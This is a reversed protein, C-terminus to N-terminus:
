GAARWQVRLTLEAAGYVLRADLLRSRPYDVALRETRDFLQGLTAITQIRGLTAGLCFHLGHGFGLHPNPSRTMDFVDPDAFRRPDHNAATLWVSVHRAAPIDYGGVNVNELSVRELRTTQGRFRMVEEVFAPFLERDRRVQAAVDPHQDLCIMANVLLQNSTVGTNMLLAVLGAIEDNSLAAGEIEARTLRTILDDGPHKRRDAIYEHLYAHIRTTEEVFVQVGNETMAPDTLNMLAVVWARFREDDGPPMGIMNAIIRSVIPTAIQKMYAVAETGAAREIAEAVTANVMPELSAIYSPTFVSKVLSRIHVHRPPDMWSLNGPRFIMFPSDKPILAAVVANSFAAHNTLVAKAEDYGFIHVDGRGPQQQIPGRERMMHFWSLLETPDPPPNTWGSVTTEATM